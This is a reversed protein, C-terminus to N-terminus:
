IVIANGDYEKDLYHYLDRENEESVFMPIRSYKVGNFITTSTVCVCEELDSFHNLKEWIKDVNETEIYVSIERYKKLM